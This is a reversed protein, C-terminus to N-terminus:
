KAGKASTKNWKLKIKGKDKRKREKRQFIRRKITEYNNRWIVDGSIQYIEGPPLPYNGVYVGRSLRYPNRIKAYRNNKPL